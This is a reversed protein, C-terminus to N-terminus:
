GHVRDFKVSNGFSGGGLFDSIDVGEEAKGIEIATEDRVIGIDSVRENVEDFLVKL